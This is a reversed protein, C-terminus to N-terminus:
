VAYEAGNAGHQGVDRGHRTLWAFRRSPRGPYGVPSCPHRPAAVNTCQISIAAITAAGKLPGSNGSDRAIIISAVTAM